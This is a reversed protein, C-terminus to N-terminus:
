FQPFIGHRLSARKRGAILPAEAFRLRLPCSDFRCARALARKGLTNRAM